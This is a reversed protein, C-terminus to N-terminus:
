SSNDGFVQKVYETMISPHKTMLSSWQELNVKKTDDDVSLLKRLSAEDFREVGEIGKPVIASLVGAMDVLAVVGHNGTDLIDFATKAMAAPDMNPANLIGLGLLFERFNLTGSDDADMLSFYHRSFPSDPISLTECFEKFDITGNGDKDIAAFREMQKKLFEVDVELEKMLRPAEIVTDCVPLHLKAAKRALVIDEFSHATVPVNMKTAMVARVNNAFLKADAKETESPKYVPLFDMKMDNWPTAMLRLIIHHLAPGDAVWSPDWCGYSLIVPQIPVGPIFAGAKFTILSNDSHTTGEPFILIQPWVGDSRGRSKLAEITNHRSNKDTRDVLITSLAKIVNGILPINLNEYAAIPSPLLIMLLPSGDVFTVHNAIVIPADKASAVTGEREIWWYGLAMMNVRMLPYLLWLFARRTPSLPETVTMTKPIGYTVIKCLLSMLATTGIFLPVRLPILVSGNVVLEIIEESTLNWHNVFPNINTQGIRDYISLKRRLPPKDSPAKDVHKDESKAEKSKFPSLLLFVGVGSVVQAVLYIYLLVCTCFCESFLLQYSVLGVEVALLIEHSKM